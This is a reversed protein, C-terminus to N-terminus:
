ATMGPFPLRTSPQASARVRNLAHVEQPRELVCGSRAWVARMCCPNQKSKTNVKQSKTKDYMEEDGVPKSVALCLCRGSLLGCLPSLASIGVRRVTQVTTEDVVWRAMARVWAM